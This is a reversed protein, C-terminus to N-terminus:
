TSAWSSLPGPNHRATTGGTRGVARRWLNYIAMRENTYQSGWSTSHRMYHTTPKALCFDFMM